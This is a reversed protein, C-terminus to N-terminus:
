SDPPAPFRCAPTPNGHNSCFPEILDCFSMPQLEFLKALPHSSSSLFRFHVLDCSKYAYSAIIDIIPINKSIRYGLDLLPTIILQLSSV